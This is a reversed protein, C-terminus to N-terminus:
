PRFDQRQKKKKGTVGIKDHLIVSSKKRFVGGRSVGIKDHLFASSAKRSIGRSVGIKDNPVLLEHKDKKM